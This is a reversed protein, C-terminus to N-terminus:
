GCHMVRWLLYYINKGILLRRQMHGYATHACVDLFRAWLYCLQLKARQYVRHTPTRGHMAIITFARVFARRQQAVRDFLAICVCNHFPESQIMCGIQWPNWVIFVNSTAAPLQNSTRILCRSCHSAIIVVAVIAASVVILRTHAQVVMLEVSIM